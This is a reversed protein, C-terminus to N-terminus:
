PEEIDDFWALLLVSGSEELHDHVCEDALVEFDGLIHAEPLLLVKLDDGEIALDYIIRTDHTPTPLDPTSSNTCVWL